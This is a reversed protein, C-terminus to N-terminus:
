RKNTPLTYEYKVFWAYKSDDTEVWFHYILHLQSYIRLKENNHM